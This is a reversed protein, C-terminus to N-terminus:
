RTVPFFREDSFDFPELELYSGHRQVGPQWRAIPVLYPGEWGREEEPGRVRYLRHLLIVQKPANADPNQRKWIDLRWRLYQYAAGHNEGLYKRMRRTLRGKLDDETEDDEPQTNLYLQGEFRRVRCKGYRFFDHIDKPENDSLMLDGRKASVPSSAPGGPSAGEDACLNFGNTKDFVLRTGPISRGQPAPDEWLMLVAPFGTAKAIGPAFLAWDQDQYTLQVWRRTLTDLEDTWAWGHGKEDAFDPAVRNILKKRENVAETDPPTWKIFGLLNTVILFFLQFLIFLGLLVQRPSAPRADSPPAAQSM